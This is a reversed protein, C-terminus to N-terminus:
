CILTLTLYLTYKNIFKSKYTNLKKIDASELSLKPINNNGRDTQGDTRGFWRKDSSSRRCRLDYDFLIRPDLQAHWASACSPKLIKMKAGITLYPGCNVNKTFNKDSSSQKWKKSYVFSVTRYSKTHRTSTCYHKPFKM